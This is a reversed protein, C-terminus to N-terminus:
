DGASRDTPVVHALMTVRQQLRTLIARIDCFTVVHRGAQRAGGIIAGRWHNVAQQPGM